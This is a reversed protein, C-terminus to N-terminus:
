RPGEESFFTTAGIIQIGGVANVRCACYDDDVNNLVRAVICVVVAADRWV